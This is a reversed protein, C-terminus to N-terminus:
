VSFTKEWFEIYAASMATTPSKIETSAHVKGYLKAKNRSQHKIEALTKPTAGEWLM